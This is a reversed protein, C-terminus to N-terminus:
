VSVLEKMRKAAEGLREVKREALIAPLYSLECNSSLYLDRARVSDTLHGAAEVLREVPELRSDRGNIIGALLGIEWDGRLATVDTEVLDVGIVDVPLRRLNKIHPGADGFYLHFVLTAPLDRHLVDLADRLAAWDNPEIGEYPLWPEELHIVAAGQAVSADILPRLVSDALEVM